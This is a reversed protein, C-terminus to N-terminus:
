AMRATIRWDKGVARIEDIRLLCQDAMTQLAPLQFLGRAESGLLTPAMYIVLEDVLGQELLAGNLTSGAEVMVENVQRRALDALVTKLDPQAGQLVVVEAGVDQLASIKIDDDCCSYILVEGPQQILNATLPIQLHSDLVVRLPQRLQEAFCPMELGNEVTRVTLSPDDELVTGIGTLIASCGARLRQVDARAAAGTIWKSEGSAMATRGDLSMALKSRLFLGEGQMRRIFGLNLAASESELLGVEVEIGADRLRQFGRGAVRPNPDQMAVVVRAVGAEVLAEACPPTKGFHSCPELTVYVTAGNARDGAQSLANVEAHPGGPYAHWGEGVVEDQFTIVCGVRPNPHPSYISSRALQIARAMFQYDQSITM